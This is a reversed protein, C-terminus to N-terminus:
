FMFSSMVVLTTAVGAVKFYASEVIRWYNMTQKISRGVCRDSNAVMSWNDGETIFETRRLDSFAKNWFFDDQIDPCYQISSRHHCNLGHGDRWTLRARGNHPSYEDTGRMSPCYFYSDQNFGCKADREFGPLATGNAATHNFICTLNGDERAYSTFNRHPGESCEWLYNGHEGKVKSDFGFFTGCPRSMHTQKQEDSMGTFLHSDMVEYRDGITLNGNLLCTANVCMTGFECRIDNTCNQGLTAVPTCKSGAAFGGKKCYLGPNCQRDDSCTANEASGVCRTKNSADKECTVGSYCSALGGCDDGAPLDKKWPLVDVPNCNEERTLVTSNILCFHTDPKCEEAYNIGNTTNACTRNTGELEGGLGIQCQWVPCTTAEFSRAFNALYAFVSLVFLIKM